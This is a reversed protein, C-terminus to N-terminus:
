MLFRLIYISVLGSMSFSFLVLNRKFGVLDTEAESKINQLLSLGYCIIGFGFILHLLAFGIKYLM